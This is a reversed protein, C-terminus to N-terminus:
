DCQSLTHLVSLGIVHGLQIKVCGRGDAMSAFPNIERLHAFRLYAAM